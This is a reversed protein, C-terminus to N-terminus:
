YQTWASSHRLAVGPIKLHVFVYSLVLFCPFTAKSCEFGTICNGCVLAGAFLVLIGHAGM